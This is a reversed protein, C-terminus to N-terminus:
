DSVRSLIKVDQKKTWAPIKGKYSLKKPVKGRSYMEKHAKKFGERYAREILADFCANFDARPFQSTPVEVDLLRKMRDINKRLSESAGKGGDESM